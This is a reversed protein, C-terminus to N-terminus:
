DDELAPAASPAPAPVDFAGVQPVHLGDTFVTTVIHGPGTDQFQAYQISGYIGAVVNVRYEGAAGTTTNRWAITTLNECLPAFIWPGPGIGAIPNARINLIARGAYTPSTEAWTRISGGCPGPQFTTPLQPFEYTRAQAPATAAITTATALCGLLVTARLHNPTRM